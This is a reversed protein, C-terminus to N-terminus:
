SATLQRNNEWYFTQSACKFTFVVNDDRERYRQQEGLYVKISSELFNSGRLILEGLVLEYHM